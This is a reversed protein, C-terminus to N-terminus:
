IIGMYILETYAESHSIDFVEALQSVVSPYVNLNKENAQDVLFKAYERLLLAGVSIDEIYDKFMSEADVTTVKGEIARQAIKQIRAERIRAVRLRRYAEEERKIWAAERAEQAAERAALARERNEIESLVRAREAASAAFRQAITRLPQKRPLVRRRRVSSKRQVGKKRNKPIAKRKTHSKKPKKAHSKKRKTAM